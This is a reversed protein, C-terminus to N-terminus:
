GLRTRLIVFAAALVFLLASIAIIKFTKEADVIAANDAAHPAAAHPAPTTPPPSEGHMPNESM